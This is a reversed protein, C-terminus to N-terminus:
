VMRTAQILEVMYWFNETMFFFMIAAFCIMSTLIMERKSQLFGQKPIGYLQSWLSVLKLRVLLCSYKELELSQRM